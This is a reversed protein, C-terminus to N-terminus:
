TLLKVGGGAEVALVLITRASQVGGTLYAGLV